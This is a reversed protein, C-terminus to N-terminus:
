FRPFGSHLNRGFLLGRFPLAGLQVYARFYKQLILTHSCLRIELNRYRSNVLNPLFYALDNDALLLNHVSDKGAQNGAAMHKQFAYWTQTLRRQQSCQASDEM